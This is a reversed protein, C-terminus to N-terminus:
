WFYATGNNKPWGTYVSSPFKWVIPLFSLSFSSSSFAWFYLMSFLLFLPILASFLNWSILFFFCLFFYYWIICFFVYRLNQGDWGAHRGSSPISLGQPIELVTAPDHHLHQWTIRRPWPQQLILLGEQPHDCSAPHCVAGASPSM